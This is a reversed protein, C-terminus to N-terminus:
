DFSMPSNERKFWGSLFIQQQDSQLLQRDFQIYNEWATGTKLVYLNRIKLLRKSRSDSASMREWMLASTCSVLREFREESRSSRSFFRPRHLIFLLFIRPCAYILTRSSCQKIFLKFSRYIVDRPKDFLLLLERKDVVVYATKKREEERKDPERQINRCKLLNVPCAVDTADHHHLDVGRVLVKQDIIRTDAMSLGKVHQLFMFLVCKSANASNEFSWFSKYRPCAHDVDNPREDKIESRFERKGENCSIAFFSLHSRFRTHFVSHEWRVFNDVTFESSFTRKINIGTTTRERRAKMCERWRLCDEDTQKRPSVAPLWDSPQWIYIRMDSNTKCM